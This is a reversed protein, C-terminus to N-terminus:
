ILIYYLIYYILKIPIIAMTYYIMNNSIIKFYLNITIYILDYYINM